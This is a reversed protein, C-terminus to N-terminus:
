GAPFARVGLRVLAEALDPDPVHGLRRLAPGLDQTQWYAAQEDVTPEPGFLVRLGREGLAEVDRAVALERRQAPDGLNLSGFSRYATVVQEVYGTVVFRIREERDAITEARDLVEGIGTLMPAVLTELIADKTRFYYYVNAKTVGMRDAIQQLSTADYGQEGFLARAAALVLERTQRAQEARTTMGLHYM